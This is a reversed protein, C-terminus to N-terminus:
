RFTEEGGTPGIFDISSMTACKAGPDGLPPWRRALEHDAVAVVIREQDFPPM